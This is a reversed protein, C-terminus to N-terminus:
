RLVAERKDIIELLGVLREWEGEGFIRGCQPNGCAVVFPMKAWRPPLYTLSLQDCRPCVTDPIVREALDAAPYRATTRRILHGLTERMEGAWTQEACWPLLPLLWHVLRETAEAERLGVVTARRVYAGYEDVHLCSRSWWEGHTDPGRMARGLPHDERILAAYAALTSHVEDAACWEAPIVNGEAADRSGRGDGPPKAEAEPDGLERLHRVLEPADVVDANLRHWCYPCLNGYEAPTPLCGRCHDTNECETTHQGLITCGVLCPPRAFMTV